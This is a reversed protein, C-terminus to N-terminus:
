DISVSSKMLSSSHPLLVRKHGFNCNITLCSYSHSKNECRGWKRMQLAWRDINIISITRRNDTHILFLVHWYCRWRIFIIIERPKKSLILIQSLIISLVLIYVIMVLQYWKFLARSTTLWVVPLIILFFKSHFSCDNDCKSYKEINVM